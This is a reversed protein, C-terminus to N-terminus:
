VPLLCVKGSGAVLLLGVKRSALFAMLGSVDRDVNSREAVRPQPDGRDGYRSEAGAASSFTALDVRDGAAPCTGRSAPVAALPSDPASPM